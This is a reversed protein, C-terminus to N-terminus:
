RRSSAAAAVIEAGPVLADAIGRSKVCPSCVLLTGGLEQFDAMLKALPPFEPAQVTEAEGKHVLCVGDAQFGIVVAVDSALAACAMVFPITAREPDEPGHTAMIVLKEQDAMDLSREKAHRANLHLPDPRRRHRRPVLRHRGRRRGAPGDCSADLGLTALSGACARITVEGLEKAQRFTELWPIEGVHEVPENWRPRSADYALGHDNAIRDARFADLAWYMLLISVPTGMAAAGATITAAAHLKDDTGSFLVISLTDSM